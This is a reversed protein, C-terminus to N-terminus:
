AVTRRISTNAVLACVTFVSRDVRGELRGLDEHCVDWRVVLISELFSEGVVNEGSVSVESVVGLSCGVEDHDPREGSGEGSEEGEEGTAAGERESGDERDDREEAECDTEDDVSDDEFPGDLSNVIRGDTTDVNSDSKAVSVSEYTEVKEVERVKERAFSV